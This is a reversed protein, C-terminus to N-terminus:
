GTALRQVLQAIGEVTDMPYSAPYAEPSTQVTLILSLVIKRVLFRVWIVRDDM